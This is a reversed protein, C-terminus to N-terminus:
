RGPTKSEAPCWRHFLYFFVGLLLFDFVSGEPGVSGGTLWSPGHLVANSLHGEFVAGSNPVSFVFTEGFDFSAHMGVAFWLNGTRRLTLCWFMGTVFVGAAGAWNEGRNALHVLGFLASLLTAAPWFGAGQALTFQVYGRYIFEEVLGVIIFFVAWFLGWRLLTASSFALSGFRYGGFAAILGVVASIEVLGLITGQWFLKGFARRIPLGYSGPARRELKALLLSAGLAATLTLTERIFLEASSLAASDVGRQRFLLFLVSGIALLAAVYLIMRLFVIPLSTSRFFSPRGSSPLIPSAVPAGAPTTTAPKPQETM